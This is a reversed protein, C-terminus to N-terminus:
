PPGEPRCQVRWAESRIPIGRGKAHISRHPPFGWTQRRIRSPEPCDLSGVVGVWVRGM